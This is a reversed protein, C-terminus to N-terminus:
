CSISKFKFSTKFDYVNKLKVLYFSNQIWFTLSKRITLTQHFKKEVHFKYWREILKNRCLQYATGKDANGLSRITGSFTVTSNKRELKMLFIYLVCSSVLHFNRLENMLLCLQWHSIVFQKMQRFQVKCYFSYAPINFTYM